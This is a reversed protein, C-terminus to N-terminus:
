GNGLLPCLDRVKHLPVLLQRFALAQRTVRERCRTMATTM